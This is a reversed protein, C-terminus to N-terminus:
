SEESKEGKIIKYAELLSRVRFDLNDPQKEAYGYDLFITKCGASSGAEIDRWRDGVMYSKDLDIDYKRAAALL